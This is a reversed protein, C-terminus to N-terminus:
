VVLGLDKILQPIKKKLGFIGAKAFPWVLQDFPRQVRHLALGSVKFRPDSEDFADKTPGIAAYGTMVHQVHVRKALAELETVQVLAPAADVGFHASARQVADTVAGFNWQEACCDEETLVILCPEVPPPLCIEIPLLDPKGSFPLSEANAVLQHGPNFRGETYRSINGPKALYHKGVTHLGGVM